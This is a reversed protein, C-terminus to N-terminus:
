KKAREITSHLMNLMNMKDSLWKASGSVPYGKIWYFYKKDQNSYDGYRKLSIDFETKLKFSLVRFNYQNEEQSMGIVLIELEGYPCNNEVIKNINKITLRSM